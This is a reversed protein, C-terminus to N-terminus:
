DGENDSSTKGANDVGLKKELNILRKKLEPLNALIAVQRMWVTSPLVPSGGYTGKETINKHIGTKAAFSTFPAIKIHDSVGIQGGFIVYDGLETTGSIGCQAAILCYRGVKVNHGIHVLNDIKTGEGIETTEITARDVTSNAGIEVNDHIIVKGKQPIKTHSRGPVFGFGDAGIVAGSHIIVNNGIVTDEYISVNPYILCNIGITVRQGIYVGPYIATGSGIRCSSEVVSFDGISVNKGLETDIAVTAKSSIDISPRRAPRMIDILAALALRMDGDVLIFSKGQVLPFDRPVVYCVAEGDTAETMKVGSLLCVSNPKQNEPTSIDEVNEDLGILDGGLGSAIKSLIM